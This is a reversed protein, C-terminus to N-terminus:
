WSYLLSGLGFCIVSFGILSFAFVTPHESQYKKVREVLSPKKDAPGAASAAAPAPANDTAPKSAPDNKETM